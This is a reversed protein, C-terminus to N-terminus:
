EAPALSVQRIVDKNGIAPSYDSYFLYEANATLTEFHSIERAGGQLGELLTTAGTEPDVRVLDLDKTQAYILGDVITAQVIDAAVVVPSGGDPTLTYIAGGGFGSYGKPDGNSWSGGTEVFGTSYYLGYVEGEIVGLLRQSSDEVYGYFPVDTFDAKQMQEVAGSLDDSIRFFGSSERWHLYGDVAYIHPEVFAFDRVPGTIAPESDTALRTISMTGSNDAIVFTFEGSQVSSVSNPDALVVSSPESEDLPITTLMAEGAQETVLTLADGDRRVHRAFGDVLLFSEGSAIDIRYIGSSVVTSDFDSTEVEQFEFYLNKDDAFLPELRGDYFPDDVGVIAPPEFIESTTCAGALTAALV